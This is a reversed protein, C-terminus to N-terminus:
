LELSDGTAVDARLSPLYRALRGLAAPECSHGLVLKAQSQMVMAVNETLTPHTPLRIWDARGEAVMREGPTGMPLHGTFLTPQRVERAVGLVRRSPGALGMADDCFLAARPLSGSERWDIASALRTALAQCQRNDLWLSQELQSAIAQRLGPALALAGPVIALLEVSRGLRPTPLVGGQRQRMVWRSIERARDAAAMEDDGYSADIVIVDSPPLPDMVFVPSAPVVDGCYCFRLNGTDILCWVGGVVHGSRGTTIRL